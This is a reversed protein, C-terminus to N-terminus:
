TKALGVPLHISFVGKDPLGYLKVNSHKFALSDILTKLEYVHQGSLGPEDLNSRTLHAVASDRQHDLRNALQLFQRKDIVHDVQIKYKLFAEVLRHNSYNGKKELIQDMTLYELCRFYNLYAEDCFNLKLHSPASFLTQAKEYCTIFKEHWNIIENQMQLAASIHGAHMCALTPNQVTLPVPEILFDMGRHGSISFGKFQVRPLHISRWEAFSLTAMSLSVLFSFGLKIASELCHADRMMPETNDLYSNPKIAYWRLIFSREKPELISFFPIMTNIISVDEATPALIGPTAVEIDVYLAKATPLNGLLAEYQQLFRELQRLGEERTYM